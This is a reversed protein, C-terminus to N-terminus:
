GPGSPETRRDDGQIANPNEKPVRGVGHGCAMYHTEVWLAHISERATTVLSYLPDSPLFDREDMRAKLRHLYALMPAVRDKIAAAQEPTLEESKV